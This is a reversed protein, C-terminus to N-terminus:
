NHHNPLLPLMLYLHISQNAWTCNNASHMLSRHCPHAFSASEEKKYKFLILIEFIYTRKSINWFYGGTAGWLAVPGLHLKKRWIQLSTGPFFPPRDGGLLRYPPRDGGRSRGSPGAWPRPLPGTAGGRAVPTSGRIYPDVGMGEENSGSFEVLFGSFLSPHPSLFRRLGAPNLV